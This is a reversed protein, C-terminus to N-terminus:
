LVNQLLYTQLYVGYKMAESELKKERCDSITFFLLIPVKNQQKQYIKTLYAYYQIKKENVKMHQLRDIEVFHPVNNKTFFADPVITKEEGQYRLTIVQETKWDPFDLWMWAENRLLIHELQHKKKREKAHIGLLAMGKKNLYYVYERNHSTVHCYPRLDKLIRNANRISGLCHIAQLQRRSAFELKSLSSLIEIQRAKQKLKQHKM